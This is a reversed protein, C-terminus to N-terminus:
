NPTLQLSLQFAKDTPDGDKDKPVPFRWSAMLDTVCGDVKDGVGTASQEDLTGRETVTFAMTIKGALSGDEVLGKKYCRQLGPMYVTNIKDLVMKATLTTDNGGPMPLPRVQIRGPHDERKPENTTVQTPADITPGHDVGIRGDQQQRFGNDRDGGVTIPRDGVADIQKGLDAGPTRDRMPGLGGQGTESGTLISAFRQADEVSMQPAPGTKPTVRTPTVVPRPVQAPAVPAAVGPEQTTPAPAVPAPEDPYTIEMTEHHYISAVPTELMSTHEVDTMWAYGAIGLHLLVSAGVIAALRRDIRDALTGRVSAPLVPRPAAPVAAIEQFLLTADGVVIRGRAGHPVVHDGATLPTNSDGHALRGTMAATTRLILRGEDVVFLPHEHPIGDGPVSVACRLSQGFTIPQAGSFLKEEVLQGGLLVGIRLARTM